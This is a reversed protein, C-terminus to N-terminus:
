HRMFAPLPIYSRRIARDPHNEPAEPFDRLTLLQLSKMTFWYVKAPYFPIIYVNYMLSNPHPM